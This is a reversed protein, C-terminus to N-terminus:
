LLSPLDSVARSQMVKIVYIYPITVFKFRKKGIEEADMNNLIALNYEQEYKAASQKSTRITSM